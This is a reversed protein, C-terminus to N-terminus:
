GFCRKSSHVVATKQVQALNKMALKDRMARIAAMELSFKHHQAVIQALSLTLSTQNAQDISAASM